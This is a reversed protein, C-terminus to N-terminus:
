TLCSLKMLFSLKLLNLTVSLLSSGAKHSQGRTKTGVRGEATEFELQKESLPCYNESSFTKSKLSVVFSSFGTDGVLGAGALPLTAPSGAGGQGLLCRTHTPPTGRKKAVM